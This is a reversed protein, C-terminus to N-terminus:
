LTTGPTWLCVKWGGARHQIESRFMRCVIYRCTPILRRSGFKQLFLSIGRFRSLRIAQEVFDIVYSEQHDPLGDFHTLSSISNILNVFHGVKPDWVREFNGNPADSFHIEFTPTVRDAVPVLSTRARWPDGSIQSTSHRILTTYNFILSVYRNEPPIVFFPFHQTM